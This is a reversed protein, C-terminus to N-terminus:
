DTILHHGNVVLVVIITFSVKFILIFCLFHINKNKIKRPHLNDEVTPLVLTRISLEAKM